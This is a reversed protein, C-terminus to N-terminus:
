PPVPLSSPSKGAKEAQRKQMDTRHQQAEAQRREYDARNTVQQTPAPGSPANPIKPASGSNNLPVNRNAERKTAQESQKQAQAELNAANAAAVDKEQQARELAKKRSIELQEAGRQAREAENLKAEQRRLDSIVARRSSQSARLCDNVAFRSQCQADAADFRATERQRIAQIEQRKSNAEEVTSPTSNETKESMTQAVTLGAFGLIIAIAVFRKM